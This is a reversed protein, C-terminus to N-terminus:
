PKGEQSPLGARKRTEKDAEAWLDESPLGARRGTRRDADAKFADESPLTPRRGTRREVEAALMDRTQTLEGVLVALRRAVAQLRENVDAMNDLERYWDPAAM